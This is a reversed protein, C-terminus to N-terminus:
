CASHSARPHKFSRIFNPSESNWSDAPCCQVSTPLGLAWILLQSRMDMQVELRLTQRRPWTGLVLLPTKASHTVHTVCTHGTEQMLWGPVSPLAKVASCAHRPTTGVRSLDATGWIGSGNSLFSVWFSSQSAETEEDMLHPIIIGGGAAIDCSHPSSIRYFTQCPAQCM